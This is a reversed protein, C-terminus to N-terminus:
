CNPGSNANDTEGQNPELWSEEILMIDRVAIQVHARDFLASNPYVPGGEMFAARVCRVLMKREEELVGIAYNIVARDLRHAGTSQIPLAMGTRKFFTLFSDYIESLATAWQIDLFDMCDELRIVSGIVAADAGCHTNAWEWARLPADQFFYVGDGLWDYENRSVKFGDRLISEAAQKTTGHYGHVHVMKGM